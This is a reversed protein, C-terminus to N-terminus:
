EGQKIMHTGFKERFRDLIRSEMYDLAETVDETCVASGSVGMLHRMESAMDATELIFSSMAQRRASPIERVLQQQSLNVVQEMFERESDTM